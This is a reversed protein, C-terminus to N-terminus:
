FESTEQEIDKRQLENATIELLETFTILRLPKYGELHVEIRDNSTRWGSGPKDMWSQYEFRISVGTEHSLKSLHTKVKEILSVDVM